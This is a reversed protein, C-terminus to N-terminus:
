EPYNVDTTHVVVHLNLAYPQDHLWAVHENILEIYIIHREADCTEAYNVYNLALHKCARCM